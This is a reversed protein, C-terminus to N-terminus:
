LDVVEIVMAAELAARREANKAKAWTQYAHMNSGGEFGHQKAYSFMSAYSAGAFLRTPVTFYPREVGVHRGLFRLNGAATKAATRADISHGSMLVEGSTKGTVMWAAKVARHAKYTDTFGNSFTSTITM